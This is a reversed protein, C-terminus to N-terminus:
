RTNITINIVKKRKKSYGCFTMTGNDIENDTSEDTFEGDVIKNLKIRISERAERTNMSWLYGNMMKVIKRNIFYM